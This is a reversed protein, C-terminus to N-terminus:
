DGDADLIKATVKLEDILSIYYAIHLKKLNEYLEQTHTLDDNKIKATNKLANNLYQTTEKLVKTAGYAQLTDGFNKFSQTDLVTKHTELISQIALVSNKSITYEARSNDPKNEYKKTFGATDGVRWETLKYSNESLSNLIIANAKLEDKIFKEKQQLYGNYIETLNNEMTQLIILTIDKIRQNQLNKTFLIYELANITKHSNKYLSIKLDESSAIILDLQEKIDENGQHFTDLYRPTDLYNEDLDGLIYFAEVSKWGKVINKFDNQVIGFNDEKIHKQLTKVDEISHKSNKLIVNEYLSTLDENAFLTNLLFMVGLLWRM